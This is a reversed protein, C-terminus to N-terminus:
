RLAREWAGSRIQSLREVTTDIVSIDAPIQGQSVARRFEARPLSRIGGNRRYVVRGGEILSTGTVRELDRLLHFLKDISCGSADSEELAVVLIADDLIRAAARLGSGHSSWGELFSDLHYQITESQSKSLPTDAAFVWVRADDSLQEFPIM